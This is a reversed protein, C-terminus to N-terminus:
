HILGFVRVFLMSFTVDFTGVTRKFPTRFDDFSMIRTLMPFKSPGPQFCNRHFHTVMTCPSATTSAPSPAPSAFVVLFKFNTDPIIGLINLFPDGFSFFMEGAGAGRPTTRRSSRTTSSCCCCCCCSCDGYWCNRCLLICFSM